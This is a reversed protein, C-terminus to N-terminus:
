AKKLFSARHLARLGERRGCVAFNGKKPAKRKALSKRKRRKRWFFGVLAIRDNKAINLEKFLLHLKMVEEGVQQYTYSKKSVYDTMAMLEWNDKIANEFYNIFDSKM